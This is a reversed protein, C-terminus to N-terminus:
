RSVLRHGALQGQVARNAPCLNPPSPSSQGAPTLRDASPSIGLDGGGQQTPITPQHDPWNLWPRRTM